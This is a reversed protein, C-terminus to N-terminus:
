KKLLSADLKSSFTKVIDVIKRKNKHTSSMLRNM